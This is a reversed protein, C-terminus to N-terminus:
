VVAREHRDARTTPTPDKEEIEPPPAPRPTTRHAAPSPHSTQRTRAPSTLPQTPVSVPPKPPAIDIRVEEKSEEEDDEDDGLGAGEKGVASLARLQDLEERDFEVDAAEGGGEEKEDTFLEDVDRGEKTDDTHTTTRRQSRRRTALQTEYHFTADDEDATHTQQYQVHHRSLHRRILYLLAILFISGAITYFFVDIGDTSFAM